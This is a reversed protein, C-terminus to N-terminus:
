CKKFTQIAAAVWIKKESPGPKPVIRARELHCSEFERIVITVITVVKLNEEPIRPTTM